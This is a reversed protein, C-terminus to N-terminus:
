ELLLSPGPGDEKERTQCMSEDNDDVMITVSRLLIWDCGTAVSKFRCLQLGLM